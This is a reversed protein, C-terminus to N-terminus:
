FHAHTQTVDTCNNILFAVKIVKHTDIGSEALDYNRFINLFSLYVFSAVFLPASNFFYFFSSVKVIILNFSAFFYFFFFVTRM